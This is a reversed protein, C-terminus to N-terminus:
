TATLNVLRNKPYEALIKMEDFTEDTIVLYLSVVDQYFFNQIFYHNIWIVNKELALKTNQNFFYINHLFDLNM